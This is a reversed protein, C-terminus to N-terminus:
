GVLGRQRCFDGFWGPGDIMNPGLLDAWTAKMFRSRPGSGLAAIFRGLRAGEVGRFVREPGLNALTIPRGAALGHLLCWNRALEYCGCAKIAEFQWTLGQASEYRSWGSYDAPKEDNGSLYKVEIFILGTDGLDVIVDPESLSNPDENLRKCCDKLRERIGAGYDTPEVPVGWLLLTPAASLSGEGILGAARLAAPLQGSRLLYTFVVWTVADESTSFGFRVWKSERNRKNLAQRLAEGAGSRSEVPINGLPDRHIYTVTEINAANSAGIGCSECRRLCDEFRTATPSKDVSAAQLMPLHCGPCILTRLQRMSMELQGDEAETLLVKLGQNHM